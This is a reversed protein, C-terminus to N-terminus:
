AEEILLTEIQKKESTLWRKLLQSIELMVRSHFGLVKTTAM